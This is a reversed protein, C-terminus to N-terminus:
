KSSIFRKIKNIPICDVKNKQALDVLFQIGNIQETITFIDKFSNLVEDNDEKYEYNLETCIKKFLKTSSQTFKFSTIFDSKVEDETLDQHAIYKDRITKLNSKDYEIQLADIEKELTKYDFQIKSNKAINILRKFTHKENKDFIKHFELINNGLLLGSIWHLGSNNIVSINQRDVQFSLFNLLSTNINITQLIGNIGDIRRGVQSM